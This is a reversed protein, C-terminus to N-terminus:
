SRASARASAASFAPAACEARRPGAKAQDGGRAAAPSSYGPPPVRAAVAAMAAVAAVAVAAAAAAAAGM